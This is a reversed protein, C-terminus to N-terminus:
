FECPPFTKLPIKIHHLCVAHDVQIKEREDAAVSISTRTPKSHRNGHPKRSTFCTITRRPKQTVRHIKFTLTQRATVDRFSEFSQSSSCPLKTDRAVVGKFKRSITSMSTSSPEDVSRGSGVVPRVETSTRLACSRKRPARPRIQTTAWSRSCRPTRTVSLRVRGTSSGRVFCSLMIEQLCSKACRQARQSPRWPLGRYKSYLFGCTLQCM